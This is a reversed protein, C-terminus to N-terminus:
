AFQQRQDELLQPDIPRSCFIVKFYRSLPSGGDKAALVLDM